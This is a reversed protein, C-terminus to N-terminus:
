FQRGPARRSSVGTLSFSEFRPGSGRQVGSTLLSASDRSGLVLGVTWRDIKFNNGLDLAAAVGLPLRGRTALRLGARHSVEFGDAGLRERFLSEGSLQVNGAFPTWSAGLVRTVPLREGGLPRSRTTDDTLVLPRGINRVVAAFYLQRLARLTLGVDLARETSLAAGSHFSLGLGVSVLRAGRAIGFRVEQATGSLLRDRRYGFSVGRSNFGVSLQGLRIDGDLPREVVVEGLVSAELFLHLGAPNVWLARADDVAGAFLYDRSRPARAQALAPYAAM